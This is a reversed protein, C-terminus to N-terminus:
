KYLPLACPFGPPLWARLRPVSRPLAPRVSAARRGCRPAWVPDGRAPSWLPGLAARGGARGGRRRQAGSLGGGAGRGSRARGEAAGRGTAFSAADGTAVIAAARGPRASVRGLARCQGGTCPPPGPGSSPAWRSARGPPAPALGAQHGAPSRPPCASRQQTDKRTDTRPPVPRAAPPPEASRGRVGPGDLAGGPSPCGAPGLPGPHRDLGERGRRWPAIAPAAPISAPVKTKRFQHLFTPKEPM